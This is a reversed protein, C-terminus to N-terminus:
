LRHLRHILFCFSGKRTLVSILVWVDFYTQICCVSTFCVDLMIVRVCVDLLCILFPNFVDALMACPCLYSFLLM